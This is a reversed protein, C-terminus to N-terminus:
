PKKMLEKAASLLSKQIEAAQPPRAFLQISERLFGQNSVPVIAGAQKVPGCTASLSVVWVGVERWNPMVLYVGPSGAPILAAPVSSHVDDVLGEATGSIRANNSPDDCGELRVAFIAKTKSAKGGTGAAVPPGITLSLDAAGAASVVAFLLFIRVM